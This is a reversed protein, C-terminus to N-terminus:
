NVKLNPIFLSFVWLLISSTESHFVCFLLVCPFTISVKRCLLFPTMKLANVYMCERRISLSRHSHQFTEILTERHKNIKNTKWRFVKENKRYSKGRKIGLKTNWYKLLCRWPCPQLQHECYAPERVTWNIMLWVVSFWNLTFTLDLKTV